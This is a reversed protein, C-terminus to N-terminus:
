KEKQTKAKNKGIRWLGQTNLLRLSQLIVPTSSRKSVLWGFHFVFLFNTFDNETRKWNKKRRDNMLCYVLWSSVLCCVICFTFFASSSLFLFLSFFLHFDTGLTSKLDVSTWENVSCQGHMNIRLCTSSQKRVRVHGFVLIIIQVVSIRM